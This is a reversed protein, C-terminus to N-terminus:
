AVYDQVTWGSPIGYANRQWGSMSPNKIFTGTASVGQVWSDTCNSASINTALCTIKNLLTCNYFMRYYCYQTLTTALLEPATELATCGSFMAQYCFNTLTTAPLVPVTILSTCGYFMNSYCSEALTTAPLIKPATTLSSCNYFMTGYCYNRMTTAPLVLNEADVLHSSGNFLGCFENNAKLTTQNLFNDGYILSMINGYVKYDQPINFKWYKSSSAGWHNNNVNAKLYVKGTRTTSGTQLISDWNVGDTSYYVSFSSLSGTKAFQITINGGDIPEVTFYDQSYDHAPPTPNYDDDYFDHGNLVANNIIGSSAGLTPSGGKYRIRNVFLGM